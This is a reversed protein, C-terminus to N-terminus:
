ASYQQILSREVRRPHNEDCTNYGKAEIQTKVVLDEDITKTVTVEACYEYSDFEYSDIGPIGVRDKIQLEFTTVSEESDRTQDWGSYGGGEYGDGSIINVGACIIDAETIDGSSGIIPEDNTGPAPFVVVNGAGLNKTDWYHACDLATNAAYFAYQSERSTGSLLTQRLAISIITASISVILTAVLVSFLLTFGSQTSHMIHQNKKM